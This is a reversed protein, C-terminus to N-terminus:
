ATAVQAGSSVNTCRRARTEPLPTAVGFSHAQRSQNISTASTSTSPSPTPRPRQRPRRGALACCRRREGGARALLTPPWGCHWAAYGRRPFTMTTCTATPPPAHLRRRSSSRPRTSTARDGTRAPGGTPQLQRCLPGRVVGRARQSIAPGVSASGRARRRGRATALYVRCDSAQKSLGIRAPARDSRRPSPTL